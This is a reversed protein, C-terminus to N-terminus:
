GRALRRECGSSSGSFRTETPAARRRPKLCFVWNLPCPSAFTGVSRLEDMVGVVLTVSRVGCAERKIKVAADKM